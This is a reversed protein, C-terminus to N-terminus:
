DHNQYRIGGCALAPVHTDLPQEPHRISHRNRPKETIEMGLAEARRKLEFALEQETMRALKEAGHQSQGTVAVASFTPSQYKALRTAAELRCRQWHERQEPDDITKQTYYELVEAMHDIALRRSGDLALDRLITTRRNLTGKKRGGRREGPQSGRPLVVRYLFAGPENVTLGAPVLQNGTIGGPLYIRVLCAPGL